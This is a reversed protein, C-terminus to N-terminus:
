SLKLFYKNLAQDTNSEKELPALLLVRLSPTYVICMEKKLKPLQFDWISSPLASKEQPRKRMGKELLSM